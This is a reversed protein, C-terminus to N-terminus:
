LTQALPYLEAEDKGDHRALSARMAGAISGYEEADHAEFADNLEDFSVPLDRHGKRLTATLVAKVAPFLERRRLMKRMLSNNNSKRYRKSGFIYLVYINILLREMASSNASGCRDLRFEDRELASEM